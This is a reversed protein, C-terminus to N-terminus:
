RSRRGNGPALQTVTLPDDWEAFPAEASQIERWEGMTLHEYANGCGSLVSSTLALLSWRLVRRVRTAIHWPCRPPDNSKADNQANVIAQNTHNM